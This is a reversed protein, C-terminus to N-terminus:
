RQKLIKITTYNKGAFIHMLYIGDRLSGISFETIRDGALERTSLKEGRIGYIEARVKESPELGKIELSFVGSTPNPYIKCFTQEPAGAVDETGALVAVLPQNTCFPGQQAIYGTMFGGEAVFAGPYYLIKEGAIMTASGGPFVMFSTENGAVFITGIADFCDDGSIMVDQIEVATPIDIVTMIINDSVVPNSLICSANSTLVCNVQDNMAPIYSFEPDNIGADIGNVRWQYLPSAGGNEPFATFTVSTGQYVLNASATISVSVPLWPYITMVEPGSTAPNGSVCDSSSTLVCTVVDNHVPYFLFERSNWGIPNGNVKWQYAPTTGGNVPTATFVVLNEDCEPNASPEITVAAPLIPRVLMTLRNSAAPSGTVCSESSTLRCVISDGNTPYYCFVPSNTGSNLGNVQWEYGPANGGTVATAEFSVLTSDCVNNASAVISIGAVPPINVTTLTVINSVAPNGTICSANSTLVCTVSDLNEPIFSYSPSGNGANTGNVKWQYAPSTGGNAPTATFTVTMGHCVPNASAAISIGAPYTTSCSSSIRVDDICIGRGYKANGQFAIYYNPSGGPLRIAERTWATISSAFSALFTWTGGPSTKYFVDLKDQRGTWAAQTHWFILEPEVVLTLNLEPSILRTMHDAATFDKLCGNYAGDHANAPNGNGSGTIFVWNLNSSNVQEQTWCDPILGGNEFGESWPFVSIADCLTSIIQENGYSTGYSNTAFARIYYTTNASLGTISSTFAGAGSGDMTHNGAITPNASNSWCVGRSTVPSIGESTVNGGSTAGNASISSVVATTVVPPGVSIGTISIDDIAWYYGYTGNYNWKFKVNSQGAVATIVQNFAVPNASSTTTFSAIPTWTTGGNISYSLTGSSGEYSLFFHNFRLEVHSFSSLNLTPTVLDANQSNEIGYGDSNLYAYNGSLAPDPSGGTIAGFQWVQGNGEHDTQTWCNPIAAVTFNETFPLFYAGCLTKFIIDNGYYTGNANTAFARAHYLTGSSLGNMQCTFIGTGSGNSSNNGSITPNFATSWCVGRSTIASGGDETISGGSLASFLTIASAATTTILAGGAIFVLDSGNCSGDSNVAVLRCHYPQNVVLGTIDASVEVPNNGSGAVTIVTSNGYSTTTGWQFYCTTELGNPNVTGNLTASSSTIASAIKTTAVPNNGIRFSVIKTKRAESAGIYETTFWFTQDDTPDVSMSAYDGWRNYASQYYSGSLVTEEPIDLVGSASAYAAASQGAYRIGPYVSNSSVSYGVAIKNSGNMAVTGMWRSHADPAFTGQQRITWTTAPPTKRLEYWRIGAHDTGDVNVTHCCVISQYAGFNRYQPVNMIVTSIACLKRTTVPQAINDWGDAGGPFQSNFPMVDLQQKRNFTSSAVNSWDVALEYIWLQDSGGGVADDNFAIFTGPTGAPAFSGDNDAPPVVVVGTGPRYPNDFAVMRATGGALMQSREFVYIDNGTAPQTNTGMYYGDRWVAIKEYDPIDVVDFSYQFWTDTPDNSTSVAFLMYDNTGSISFEAAVWRGAQEDYLIIPDGDNYNAGPVNGFLTNMNNSLILAGSKDYIAYMCNVAQMYYDEGAAGNCDPPYYPSSQGEFNCIPASAVNPMRGNSKQWAADAEKPLAKSAFPYAPKNWPTNKARKQAKEYLSRYATKTMAPINRLPESVGIFVGAKVTGPKVPIDQATARQLFQLM